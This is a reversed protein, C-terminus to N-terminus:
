PQGKSNDQVTEAAPAYRLAPIRARPDPLPEGDALLRRLRVASDADAEAQNALFAQVLRITM